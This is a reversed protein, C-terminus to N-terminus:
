INLYIVDNADISSIFESAIRSPAQRICRILPKCGEPALQSATLIVSFASRGRRSRSRRYGIPWHSAAHQYAATLLGIHATVDNTWVLSDAVDVTTAQALSIHRYEARLSVNSALRYEIGWRLYRRGSGRTKRRSQLSFIVAEL